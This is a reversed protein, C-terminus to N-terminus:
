AALAERATMRQRLDVLEAPLMNEIKAVWEDLRQGEPEESLCEFAFGWLNDRGPKDIFARGFREAALVRQWIADRRQRIERLLM